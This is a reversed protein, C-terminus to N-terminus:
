KVLVDSVKICEEVSFDNSAIFKQLAAETLREYEPSVEKSLEEEILKQLNGNYTRFYNNVEKLISLEEPTLDSVNKNNRNFEEGKKVMDDHNEGKLKEQADKIYEEYATYIPKLARIAKIVTFKDADEMKTLKSKNILAYAEIVQKTQM